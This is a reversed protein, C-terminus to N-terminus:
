GGIGLSKKTDDLITRPTKAQLLALLFSHLQEDTERSVFHNLCAQLTADAQPLPTEVCQADAVIVKSRLLFKRSLCAEVLRPVVSPVDPSYYAIVLPTAIEEARREVKTDTISKVAEALQDENIARVQVIQRTQLQIPEVSLEKKTNIHLFYKPGTEDIARMHTAGPYWLRGVNLHGHYDGALVLGVNKHIWDIDFEWQGEVDIAQRAMQHLLLLNVKKVAALKEKLDAASTYDYGIVTVDDYTKGNGNHITFPKGDGVYKAAGLAAAWPPDAKEHQGQIVYVDVANERLRNMAAVFRAVSESDPKPKDFIDGCLILSTQKGAKSCVTSVIQDLSAYADGRISPQDAWITPSLHLDAAMFLM